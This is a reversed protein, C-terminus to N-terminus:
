CDDSAQLIERVETLSVRDNIDAEEMAGLLARDEEEETMAGDWLFDSVAATEENTLGYLDYVLWDIQEELESTDADADAAKAALMRDVLRVLEIQEADVLEPIPLTEGHAQFWRGLSSNLVAGVYKAQNVSEKVLVPTAGSGIRETVSRHITLTSDAM